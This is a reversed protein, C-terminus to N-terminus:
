ADVTVVLRAKTTRAPYYTVGVTEPPLPGDPDFALTVTDFRSVRVTYTGDLGSSDHLVVRGNARVTRVTTPPPPDIDVTVRRTRRPLTTENDDLQPELEVAQQRRVLVVRRVTAGGTPDGREVLTQDDVRVRVTHEGVAPFTERLRAADLAALASADLVNARDTLPSDAAVLRETLAMAVRREDPARDAQAFADDAIALALVATATLVLLATALAPLNVQGRVTM